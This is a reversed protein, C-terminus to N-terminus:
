GKTKNRRSLLRSVYDRTEDSCDYLCENLMDDTAAHRKVLQRLATLRCGSCYNNEYIYQLVSIPTKCGQHNMALVDMFVGHWIGDRWWRTNVPVSKVISELLEADTPQYNCAFAEFVEEINDQVHQLAFERVAPHRIEGLARYAVWRLDENDSQTDAIIPSPDCPYPRFTFPRLTSIKDEAETAALYANVDSMLKAQKDEATRTAWQKRWSTTEAKSEAYLAVIKAVEKDKRAIKRLHKGYRDVMVIILWEFDSRDVFNRHLYLRGLDTAIWEAAAEDTLLSLAVTEFDDRSYFYGRPRRQRMLLDDYLADYKHWLAVDAAEYGDLAFHALTEALYQMKWGRFVLKSNFTEILAEIFPMKDEYCNILSYTTYARTGESQTDYSYEHKCAWMVIKRYKQPNAKAALICRGQGRM